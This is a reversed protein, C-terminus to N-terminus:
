NPKILPLLLLSAIATNPTIFIRILTQFTNTSFVTYTRKQFALNTAPGITPPLKM